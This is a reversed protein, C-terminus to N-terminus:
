CCMEGLYSKASLISLYYPWKFHLALRFWMTLGESFLCVFLSQLTMGLRLKFELEELSKSQVISM